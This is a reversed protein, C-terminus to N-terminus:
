EQTWVVTPGDDFSSAGTIRNMDIVDMVDEQTTASVSRAAKSLQQSTIGTESWSPDSCLHHAVHFSGDALTAILVDKTPVYILGTVPHLSSSSKHIRSSAFPLIKFGPTGLTGTNERPSWFLLKGPKCFVLM